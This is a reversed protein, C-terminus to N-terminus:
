FCDVRRRYQMTPQITLWQPRGSLRRNGVRQAAIRDSKNTKEIECDGGFLLYNQSFRVSAIAFGIMM